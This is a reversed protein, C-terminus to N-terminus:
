RRAARHVALLHEYLAVGERLIFDSAVPIYEIVHEDIRMVALRYAKMSLGLMKAAMIAGLTIQVVAKNRPTCPFSPLRSLTPTVWYADTPRAWVGNGYGTKNEIFVLTGDKDVAVLDIQTACGIHLDYVVFEARFPRMGRAIIDAMLHHAWPNMGERYKRAFSGADLMVAAEIQQHIYSGRVAGRLGDMTHRRGVGRVPGADFEPATAAHIRRRQRVPDSSATAKRARRRPPPRKRPALQGATPFRHAHEASDSEEEDTACLVEDMVRTVGKLSYPQSGPRAPVYVYRGSANIVRPEKAMLTTVGTKDRVWGLIDVDFSLNM